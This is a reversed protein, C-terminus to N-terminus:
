LEDDALERIRINRIAGHTVWTCLGLPVSLDVEMRIDFKRNKRAVDVIKKDDLWCTIKDITVRVRVRYWQKQKFDIVQTTENESADLGDICSVGVLSGGWGGLVLSAHKDGVPFTLGCWFDMGDVRMGELAIEYDDQPVKGTYTIGTGSEGMPLHVAGDKVAVKGSGGWEPVKWGKLTKGDFLSRWQGKAVVPQTAPQTAAAPRTTPPKKESAKEDPKKGGKDCSCLGAAVLVGVSVGVARWLRDSRRRVSRCGDMM